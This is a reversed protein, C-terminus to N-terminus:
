DGFFIPRLIDFGDDIFEITLAAGFVLNVGFNEPGPAPIFANVAAFAKLDLLKKDFRALFRRHLNMM